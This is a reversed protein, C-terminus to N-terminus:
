ATSATFRGCLQNVVTSWRKRVNEDIVESRNKVVDELRELQSEVLSFLMAENVSTVAVNLAM